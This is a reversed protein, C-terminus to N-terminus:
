ERAGNVRNLKEKARQAENEIDVGETRAWGDIVERDQERRDEYPEGEGWFRAWARETM